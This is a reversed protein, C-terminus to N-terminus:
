GCGAAQKQEMDAIWDKVFRSHTGTFPRVGNAEGNGECQAKWLAAYDLQGHEAIMTM